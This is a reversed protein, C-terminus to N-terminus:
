PWDTVSVAVMLGAAIDGCVVSPSVTVKLFPEVFRPTAVSAEPTAVKASGVM